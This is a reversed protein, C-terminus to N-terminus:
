QVGPVDVSYRAILTKVMLTLEVEEVADLNYQEVLAEMESVIDYSEGFSAYYVADFLLEYALGRITSIDTDEIQESVKAYDAKLKNYEQELTDYDASFSGAVVTAIVSYVALLLCLVILLIQGFKKMPIDKRRKLEAAKNVSKPM